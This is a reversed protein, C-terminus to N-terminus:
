SGNLIAEKTKKDVEDTADEWQEESNGAVTVLIKRRVKVENGEKELVVQLTKKIPTVTEIVDTVKHELEAVKVELAVVREELTKDSTVPKPQEEVQAAKEEPQSEEIPDM